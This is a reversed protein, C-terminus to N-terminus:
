AQALILRTAALVEVQAVRPLGAFERWITEIVEPLTCFGTFTLIDRNHNQERNQIVTLVKIAQPRTLTTTRM